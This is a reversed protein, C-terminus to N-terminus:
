RRGLKMFLVALGGIVVVIIIIGVWGWITPTSVTVRVDMNQSSTGNDAKLNIMYDGAITKGEPPTIVVDVQQTQGAGLSDVKDPKFNVIWGDPKTSTFNIKDIPASGTNYLKFSFHNEKGAVAQTNLNGTDTSMVFAYKAKVTAKLDISQTLSGSNVKLTTIYDGPDPLNGQNPTVNVKVSETSPSNIDVPSIQVASVQSEPYGATITASWGPPATVSLNFTKKDNGAYKIDVGFSYPQGSDNTLVPYKCDLTLTPQPTPTPTPTAVQAIVATQAAMFGGVMTFVLALSSLLHILRSKAM